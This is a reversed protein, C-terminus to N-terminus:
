IPLGIPCLAFQIDFVDDEWVVVIMALSFMYNIIGSVTM